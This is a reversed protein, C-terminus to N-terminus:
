LKEACLVCLIVVVFLQFLLNRHYRCGANGDLVSQEITNVGWDM